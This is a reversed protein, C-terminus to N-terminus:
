GDLRVEGGLSRDVAHLLLQVLLGVMAGEGAVDLASTSSTMVGVMGAFMGVQMALVVIEFGGLVWTFLALPPLAAVLGVGMGLVVDLPTALAEPVAIWAALASVVGFCVSAGYDFARIMM